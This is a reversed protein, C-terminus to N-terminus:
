QLKLMLEDIDFNNSNLAYGFCNKDLMVYLNEFDYISYDDKHYAGYCFDIKYYKGVEFNDGKNLDRIGGIYKVEMGILPSKANKKYLIQKM